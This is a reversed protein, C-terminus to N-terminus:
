NHSHSHWGTPSSADICKSAEMNRLPVAKVWRTSRNIISLLYVHGDSSALMHGVLDVHMYSFKRTPV